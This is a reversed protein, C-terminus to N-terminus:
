WTDSTGTSTYAPTQATAAQYDGRTKVCPSIVYAVRYTSILNWIWDVLADCFLLRLSMSFLTLLDFPTLLMDTDMIMVLLREKERSLLCSYGLAFSNHSTCYSGLFTLPARLEPDCAPLCGCRTDFWSAFALNQLSALRSFSAARTYISM